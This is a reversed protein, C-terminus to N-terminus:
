SFGKLQRLLELSNSGTPKSQPQKGLRRWEPRYSDEYVAWRLDHFVLKAKLGQEHRTHTHTRVHSAQM